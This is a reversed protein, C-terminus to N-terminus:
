LANIASIILKYVENAEEETDYASNFNMFGTYVIVIKIDPKVEVANIKDIPITVSNGFTITNM